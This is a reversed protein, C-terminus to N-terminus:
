GAHFDAMVIEQPGDATLVVCTSCKSDLWHNPGEDHSANESALLRAAAHDTARVVFGDHCDYGQSKLTRILFLKM